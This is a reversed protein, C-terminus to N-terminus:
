AVRVGRNQNFQTISYLRPLPTCVRPSGREKRRAGLHRVELYGGALLMLLRWGMDFGDIALLIIVKTLPMKPCFFGAGASGDWGHDLVAAV